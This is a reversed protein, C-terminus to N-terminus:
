AKAEKEWFKDIKIGNCRRYQYEYVHRANWKNKRLTKIVPPPFEEEKIKTYITVRKDGTINEVKEIGITEIREIFGLTPSYITNPHTLAQETM